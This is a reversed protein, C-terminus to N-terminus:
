GDQKRLEEDSVITVRVKKCAFNSPLSINSVMQGNKYERTYVNRIKEQAEKDTLRAGRPLELTTGVLKFCSYCLFMNRYKVISRTRFEKKCKTCTTKTTM